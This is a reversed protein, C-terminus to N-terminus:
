VYDDGRGLSIEGSEALRRAAAIIEKQAHEVDSLRVPATGELDESLMAAARKSMNSFFKARTREDAGKLALGKSQQGGVRMVPTLGGAYSGLDLVEAEIPSTWLDRYDKGLIFRRLSGAGYQEGAVAPRTAPAEAAKQGFAAPAVVLLSLAILGALSPRSPQIM